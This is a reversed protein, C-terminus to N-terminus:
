RRYAAMTDASSRRNPRRDELRVEQREEDRDARERERDADVLRRGKV